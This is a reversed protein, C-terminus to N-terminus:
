RRRSRRQASQFGRLDGLTAVHLPALATLYVHRYIGGGEYWWGEFEAPGRARRDRERGRMPRGQHHRLSLPHLRQSPQGLFQGNLWVQSDRFVGDFDLQLIKGQTPNPFSFTSAIGPWTSRCTATTEPMPPGQLEAGDLVYDHPLHVRQWQRDDYSASIVENSSVVDGRHFPWDADLLTQQRLAANGARPNAPNVPRSSCSFLGIAAVGALIARLRCYGNSKNDFM